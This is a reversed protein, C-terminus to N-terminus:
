QPGDGEEDAPPEDDAAADPEEQKKRGGLLNIIESRARERLADEVKQGEEVDIGVKGLADAAAGRALEQLLPDPDLAIDPDSFSGTVAIPIRLERFGTEAPAKAAVRVSLDLGQAPLNVGGGVTARFTESVLKAEGFRTFGDEM